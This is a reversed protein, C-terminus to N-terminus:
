TEQSGAYEARLVNKNPLITNVSFLSAARLIECDPYLATVNSPSNKSAFPPVTTISILEFIDFSVFSM